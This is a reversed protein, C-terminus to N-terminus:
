QQHSDVATCGNYAYSGISTIGGVTISKIVAKKGNWPATTATYNKMNGNGSFTLTYANHIYVYQCTETSTACKDTTRPTLGCFNIPGYIMPVEAFTTSINKFADNVCPNTTGQYIVKALKGINSFADTGISTVTSPITISQLSDCNKFSNSSIQTVKNLTISSLSTCDQFAYDGITEVKDPFSLSTLGSCGKFAYNSITGISTSISLGTIGTCGNFANTGLTTITNPITFTGKFGSCGIFASNGISIVGGWTISSSTLSTAKQFSYKGISTVGSAFEVKTIQGIISNWPQNETGYNQMAGSGTIKITKLATCGSLMTKDFTIKTTPYNLTTLSTCSGFSSAGISSVSTPITLETIRINKFANSGITQVSNLNLSTISTCGSFAYSNVTTTQTPLTLSTIGISTFAYNGITGVSGLNLSTLQTAGNFSYDGVSTITSSIEVNTIQTMISNWPQNTSTYTQMEGTGIIKITTLATSGTFTDPQASTITRPYEVTTLSTCGSVSQTGITTLSEPLTLSTINTCGNFAYNGVKTIGSITIKGITDGKEYWPATGSTYDKMEGNGTIKLLKDAHNYEYICASTTEGCSNKTRPTLKCFDTSSYTIDVEVFSTGISSFAADNCTTPESFGLFTISKLSAINGFSNSGISTVTDPITLTTLGDCNNFANNGITQVKNFTLSSVKTCGNFAYSNITIM